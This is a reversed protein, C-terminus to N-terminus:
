QFTAEMYPSYANQYIEIFEEVGMQRLEEYFADIESLPRIGTIFKASEAKIHENLVTSLEKVRLADTESLYAKPLRVATLYPNWTETTILRWHGDHDEHSTRIAVASDITEGTVADTYSFIESGDGLSVLERYYASEVPRYGVDSHSFIYQRAYDTFTDYTGNDVLKTTIDGVEDYYWGDVMDLPDQGEEPGYLYFNAGEDSYLYDVLMAIVEPYETDASAWLQNAKFSEVNSVYVEDNDGITMPNGCVWNQFEPAYTLTYDCLVGCVGAQMLGRATTGGMTFYDPSILGESYCTNMIEIFTRYDETAAPLVVQEDKIAFATGYKSLGSGYYGLGTWLYKEFFDANSILPVVEDGSELSVKEKFTRLMDLFEDINTPNKLECEDLWKQNIYLRETTGFQQVAPAIKPLAYIGGDLCTSSLLVNQDEEMFRWVNPMTEENLYPSWDLIMGEGAGYLVANNSNLNIGWILDPLTDTGLLLSIQENVELTQQVEITVNYGQQAFWYELYNFFWCDNADNTAVTHRTTLISITIPDTTIPEKKEETKQSAEQTVTSGSQVSTSEEKVPEENGCGTLCGASIVAALLIAGFRKKTKKM